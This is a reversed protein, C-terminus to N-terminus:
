DGGGDSFSVSASWAGWGVANHARVAVTLSDAPPPSLYAALASGPVYTNYRKRGITATAEYEDIASNGPNPATWRVDAYGWAYTIVPAGPRIRAKSTTIIFPKSTAGRGGADNDAVAVSYTTSAVVGM